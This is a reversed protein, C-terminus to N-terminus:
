KNTPFIYKLFLPIRSDWLYNNTITSIAKKQLSTNSNITNNIIKAFEGPCDSNILRGNVNDTIFDSPGPATQAVVLTGYFMAELLAMGFIEIKSLNIFCDSSLMYDAIKHYEVREIHKVYNSLSHSIIFDDVRRSLRGKGIIIMKYNQDYQLLESLIECALIPRKETDMRGIFLIIKDKKSYGIEARREYDISKKDSLISQDLCINCIADCRIKNHEMERKVKSTKAFNISYNYSKKNRLLILKTYFWHLFGPNDSLVAGFYQIIKIKRKKCWYIVNKAWLQNDSWMIILDPNFRSLINTKFIGHLGFTLHPIYFVFSYKEDTIISKVDRHLFIVNVDFGKNMLAKALGVEQVNYTGIKGFNSTNLRVIVIKM